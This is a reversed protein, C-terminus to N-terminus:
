ANPSRGLYRHTGVDEAWVRRDAELIYPYIKQAQELVRARDQALKPMVAALSERLAAEDLTTVRGDEVVARGDVMVLRVARGSEAFVTQRAASNFPLYSPDTLDLLFLDAKMGPKLAGIEKEKGATRASGLTAARLADKAYPPGPELKSVASLGVFLKMSHFMNQTDSCSCNDTGIAVAVGRDVFERVPAIGSKSKMNSAPCLVVNTGNEALKDIESELLWVSHALSVHPGVVGTAALYNVLSGGYQKLKWRAALAMAKNEYIHTYIPLGHRRSIDAMAELLGQTCREPTSPGLSWSIRPHRDKHAKYVDELLKPLDVNEFPEVTVKVGKHFAEPVCEKWFPITDLGTIDVVQMAFVCRIGVEAYADLVTRVADESYPYITAMDQITTIGGRLCDIAGLLTRVRLEELSRPPYSPPTATMLWSDLPEPEFVGRHLVDHSHYHASVFGPMVMRERADIVRGHPGADLTGPKGVASIRDDVILLDAYPPQDTDGDHDYVRGGKILILKTM